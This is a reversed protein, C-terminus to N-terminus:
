LVFWWLAASPKVLPGGVAWQIEAIQASAAQGDAVLLGGGGNNMRAGWQDVAPSVCATIVTKLSGGNTRHFFCKWM